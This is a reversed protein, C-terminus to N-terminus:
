RGALDEGLRHRALERLLRLEDEAASAVLADVVAHELVSRAARPHSEDAEAVVDQVTALDGDHGHDLRDTPEDRADHAIGLTEDLLRM